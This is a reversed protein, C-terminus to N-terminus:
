ESNGPSLIEVAIDPAGLCGRRDIKAPDCVVCLDPQVVTFIDSDRTSRDPLRVDFPAVFVECRQGYLFNGLRRGIDGTLRQHDVNPAPSMKLVKGKIIELREKFTWRLYDAYSYELSLNLDAFRM